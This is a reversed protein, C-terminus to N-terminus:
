YKFDKLLSYIEKESVANSGGFNQEMRAFESALRKHMHDPNLEYFKGEKDRLVYKFFTSAALEDEDFYKLSSEYVESRSYTRM